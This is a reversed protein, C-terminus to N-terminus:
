SQESTAARSKLARSELLELTWADEQRLVRRPKVRTVPTGSRAATQKRIESFTGTSVLHLRLPALLGVDRAEDYDSPMELLAADTRRAVAELDLGDVDGDILEVFVDYRPPTTSANPSVTFDSVGMNAPFAKTLAESVENTSAKEGRLNLDAGIREIVRLLPLTGRRGVVEVLDGTRYRYLGHSTTVVLEYREGVAVADSSLTAPSTASTMTAPIFEYYNSAVNPVYSYSDTDADAYGYVGESAVYMASIIPLDGLYREAIPRYTSFSGTTIAWAAMMHPWVRPAFGEFGVAFREQLEKAREPDPGPMDIEGIHERVWEPLHATRIANVLEEHNTEICRLWDVTATAYASQSATIARERLSFYAHLWVRAEYSELKSV